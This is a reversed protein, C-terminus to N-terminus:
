RNCWLLCIIKASEASTFAPIHLPHLEDMPMIDAEGISRFCRYSEGRASLHLNTFYVVHRKDRELFFFPVCRREWLKEGLSSNLERPYEWTAPPLQSQNAHRTIWHQSRSRGNYVSFGTHLRRERVSTRPVAASFSAAPTAHAAPQIGKRRQWSSPVTALQWLTYPRTTKTPNNLAGVISASMTNATTTAWICATTTNQDWSVLICRPLFSTITQSPKIWTQGTMHRKAKACLMLAARWRWSASLSLACAHSTFGSPRVTGGWLPWWRMASRPPDRTNMSGSCLLRGYVSAGVSIRKQSIDKGTQVSWPMVSIAWMWIPIGSWPMSWHLRQIAFVM